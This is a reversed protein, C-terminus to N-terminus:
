DDEPKQMKKFILFGVLLVAILGLVVYYWMSQFM